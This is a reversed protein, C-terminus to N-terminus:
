TFIRHAIGKVASSGIKRALSGLAEGFTPIGLIGAGRYGGTLRRRRRGLGALGAAVAAAKAAPHPIFSLGTSIMKSPLREKVWNAAGKLWSFLGAGRSHYRGYKRRPAQRMIQRRHM